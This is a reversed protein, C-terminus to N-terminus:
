ISRPERIWMTAIKKEGCTVMDGSHMTLEAHKGPPYYFYLINGAAPTITLRLRSFTTTGGQFDNNLYLIVTAIRDCETNKDVGSINFYDWHPVYHQGVQYKTLQLTECDILRHQHGWLNYIREILHQRIDQFQDHVDFYTSSTRNPTPVSKSQGFDWGGSSVYNDITLMERIQQETLLGPAYAVFPNESLIMKKNVSLMM